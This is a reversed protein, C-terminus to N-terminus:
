KKSARAIMIARNTSGKKESTKEVLTCIKKKRKDIKPMLYIYLWSKAWQKSLCSKQSKKYGKNHTCINCNGFNWSRSIILYNM